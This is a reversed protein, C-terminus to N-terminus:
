TEHARLHTYSVAEFPCNFILNFIHSYWDMKDLNEPHEKSLLSIAICCKALLKNQPNEEHQMFRDITPMCAKVFRNQFSKIHDARFGMKLLRGFMGETKNDTGKIIEERLQDGLPFGYPQSAGAGLVFVCKRGNM